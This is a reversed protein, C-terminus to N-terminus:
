TIRRPYQLDPTWVAPRRRLGQPNYAALFSDTLVLGSAQIQGTTPNRGFVPVLREITLGQRVVKTVGVPYTCDGPSHQALWFQWGMETAAQHGLEPPPSGYTYTVSWTGPQGLPLSMNQCSPWYRPTAPDTETDWLRQLFREEQLEYGDPDVVDAGIKVETIETVPYGSLRLREDCGCGCSTGSASWWGWGYGWGMSGYGWFWASDLIGLQDGWCGCGLKCPRVEMECEGIWQRGSLEYLLESAMLAYPDLDEATPLNPYDGAAVRIEEGTCWLTCPGGPLEPTVATM